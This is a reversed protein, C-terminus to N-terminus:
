RQLPSTKVLAGEDIVSLNVYIGITFFVWQLNEHLLIKNNKDM